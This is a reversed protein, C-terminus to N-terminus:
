ATLFKIKVNSLRKGYYRISSICGCMANGSQGAGVRIRDVAPITGSTDAVVSGGNISSAFDNLKYAGVLKFSTNAVVAGSDIKVDNSGGDTVSFFPNTGETILSIMENVTNDSMEVITRDGSAPTFANVLITGESQNYFGSFDGGSISCVDASRVGSTTTTPIYSTAFGGAELQAARVSGTVTLVLSGATPTFTLSTRVPYSGVGTVTAIHAGSLVVTGAGYFSLTHAAATVTRTQTTLIDSPFVLNTRAEEILLGKCVFTDPDHDFRPGFVQSATTPIYARAFAFREFQHGAVYFAAGNLGVGDESIVTSSFNSQIPMSGSDVRPVFTLSYRAWGNGEAQINVNVGTAGVIVVQDILDLAVKSNADPGSAGLNICVYRRGAAKLWLSLTSAVGATGGEFRFFRHTGTTSDENFVEATLGNVTETSTGVTGGVKFWSADGINNSYPILNEPSFRIFGDPGVETAASARTFVPAPGKRATLTKDAAFQLDLSLRDASAGGSRSLRNGLAYNM